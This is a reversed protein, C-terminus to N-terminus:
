SPSQQMSYTLLYTETKIINWTTKIKNTSKNIQNNYTHKKKKKKVNALIKCYQKYYKKLSIDRGLNIKQSLCQCTPLHLVHCYKIELQSVALSRTESHHCHTSTSHTSAGQQRCKRPSRALPSMSFTRFTLMCDVEVYHWWAFVSNNNCYKILLNKLRSM